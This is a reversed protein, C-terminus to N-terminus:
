ADSFVAQRIHELTKKLALVKVPLVPMPRLRTFISTSICPPDILTSVSFPAPLVKMTRKGM